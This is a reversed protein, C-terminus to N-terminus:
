CCDKMKKEIDGIAEKRPGATRSLSVFWTTLVALFAIASLFVTWEQELVAYAAIFGIPIFLVKFLTRAGSSLGRYRKELQYAIGVVSGGMLLAPVTMVIEYGAVHAGLLGVWTLFVGACIPCVTFPLIHNALWVLAAIAFISLVAIIISM